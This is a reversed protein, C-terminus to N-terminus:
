VKDEIDRMVHGFPLLAMPVLKMHQVALPIGIITVCLLIGGLVYGLFIVFGGFIFFVLNRNFFHSHISRSIRRVGSSVAAL